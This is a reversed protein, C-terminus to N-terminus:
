PSMVVTSRGVPLRDRQSCGCSLDCRDQMHLVWQKSLEPLTVADYPMGSNGTRIMSVLAIPVTVLIMISARSPGSLPSQNYARSFVVGMKQLRDFNPTHVAPNGFANMASSLDDSAIFLVNPKLTGKEQQSPKLTGQPQANLLSGGAMASILLFSTKGSSFTKM